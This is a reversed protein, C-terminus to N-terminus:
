TKVRFGSTKARELVQALVKGQAESVYGSNIMARLISGEKESILRHEAAFDRLSTWVHRELGVLEFYSLLKAEERRGVSAEQVEHQREEMSLVIDHATEYYELPTDRLGVWCAERKAWQTVNEQPRDESTLHELASQCAVEVNELVAEDCTQERWIAPLDLQHDPFMDRLDYLFKSLGYAVINALYGTGYWDAEQVTKRASRFLIIRAILDRYYVDHFQTSDAAWKKGVWESFHVFSSQAGKSVIQPEERWINEVKAVEIKDFKQSRPNQADFEKQERGPSTRARANEYAGRTREYFWRTDYQATRSPARLRSSLRELQKHFPSNSSFDSISVKNQSNAYRAIDPVINEAGTKDVVVLKVQVYADDLNKLKEPSKRHRNSFYWMSATTQGGNVIQWDTLSTLRLAGSHQEFTADSATTTLGNNFALFMEPSSSLTWQIGKNVNGRTSLFGRVNSELVRSGHEDYIGALERGTMTFLYTEVDEATRGGRVCPLGEGERGLQLQIPESQSSSTVAQYLRRADWVRFTMSAEGAQTPELALNKVSHTAPGNSVLEVRYRRVTANQHRFYEALEFAPSSEELQSQLEGAISSRVFAKIAEIASDIDPKGFSVGLEDVCRTLVISISGDVPDEGVAAIYAQRGHSFRASAHFQQLDQVVELNELLTCLVESMGEVFTAVDVDAATHGDNLLQRQFHELTM